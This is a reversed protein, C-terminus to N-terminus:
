DFKKRNNGLVEYQYTNLTRNIGKSCLGLSWSHSAQPNSLMLNGGQTRKAKIEKSSGKRIEELTMSKSSAQYKVLVM